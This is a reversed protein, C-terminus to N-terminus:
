LVRLGKKCFVPVRKVSCSGGGFARFFVHYPLQRIYYIYICIYIDWDDIRAIWILIQILLFVHEDIIWLWRPVCCLGVMLSPLTHTACRNQTGQVVLHSPHSLWRTSHTKKKKPIIHTHRLIYDVGLSPWTIPFIMAVNYYVVHFQHLGHESLGMHHDYILDWLASVASFSLILSWKSSTFGSQIAVLFPYFSYPIKIVGLINCPITGQRMGFKSRKPSRQQLQDWANWAVAWPM